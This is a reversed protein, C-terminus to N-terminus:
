IQCYPLLIIDYYLHPKINLLRTYKVASINIIKYSKLKREIRINERINTFILIPYNCIQCDTLLAIEMSETPVLNLMRPHIATSIDTNTYITSCGNKLIAYHTANSMM